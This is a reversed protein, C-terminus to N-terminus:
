QTNPHKCASWYDLITKVLDKIDEFSNGKVFYGQVTMETYAINIEHQNSSTSFFIFPISKKRLEPDQDISKKLELGSLKPINVDCFIIFMNDETVKMYDWAEKAYQFWRLENKYGLDRIIIELIEKDEIDDEIIVIVGGKSM